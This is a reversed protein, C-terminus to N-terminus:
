IIGHLGGETDAELRVRHLRVRFQIRVQWTTGAALADSALARARGGVWEGQAELTSWRRLLASSRDRLGDADDRAQACSPMLCGM